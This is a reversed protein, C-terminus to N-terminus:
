KLLQIIFFPMMIAAATLDPIIGWAYEHQIDRHFKMFRNNVKMNLSRGQRFYFLVWLADPSYAVWGAIEMHWKHLLIAALAISLAVFTDSYVILKYVRSNNRKSHPIGYHPIADLVFHSAFAVPLAIPWPLLAGILGGSLAHNTALM